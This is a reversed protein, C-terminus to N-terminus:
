SGPKIVAVTVSTTASYTWNMYGNSDSYFQTPFPGILVAHGNTVSVTKATPTSGDVAGGVGWTLTVTISSGGANNVYLFSAGDNLFKDGGGSAAVAASTADVGARSMTTITLTAAELNAVCVCAALVAVLWLGFRRM